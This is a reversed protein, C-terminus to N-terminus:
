SLTHLSLSAITEAMDKSGHPTREMESRREVEDFKSFKQELAGLDKRLKDVQERLVNNEKKLSKVNDGM